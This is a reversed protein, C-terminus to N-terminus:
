KSGDGWDSAPARDGRLIHELLGIQADASKCTAVRKMIGLLICARASSRDVIEPTTTVFDSIIKATQASPMEHLGRSAVVADEILIQTKSGLEAAEILAFLAAGFCCTPRPLQHETFSKWADVLM